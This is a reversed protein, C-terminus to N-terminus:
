ESLKTGINQLGEAMGRMFSGEYEFLTDVVPEGWKFADFIAMIPVFVVLCLVVLVATITVSMAITAVVFLTNVMGALLSKIKFAIKKM